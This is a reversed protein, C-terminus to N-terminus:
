LKNIEEEDELEDEFSSDGEEAEEDEEEADEEEEEFDPEETIAHFEHENMSLMALDEPLPGQEGALMEAMERETADMETHKRYSKLLSETLAEPTVHEGAIERLAVVPNKDNDREVALPAGSSIQRTRHASLIVLEFRNPIHKVCDEVTVRAM